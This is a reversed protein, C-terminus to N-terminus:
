ARLEQYLWARAFAWERKVTRESMGLAAATDEVSLGAYFRLQVVDTARPDTEALRTVALDLALIEAPDGTVALDVADLPERHREGGRKVRGRRRAYDILIKRMANASARFFEARTTWTLSDSGVLRLYAEHVLATAQLTHGSNERRMHSRAISLLQDYILPFLRDAAASDGHAAAHMLQTVPSNQTPPNRTIPAAHVNAGDDDPRTPDSGTGASGRDAIQEDRESHM